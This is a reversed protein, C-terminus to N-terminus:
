SKRAKSTARSIKVQDWIKNAQEEEQSLESLEKRMDETEVGYVSELKIQLRRITYLGYEARQCMEDKDSFRKVKLKERDEKSFNKILNLKERGSIKSLLARDLKELLKGINDKIRTVLNATNMKKAEVILDPNPMKDDCKAKFEAQTKSKYDSVKKSLEKEKVISVAVGKGKYNNPSTKEDEEIEAKFRNIKTDPLTGSILMLLLENAEDDRRDVLEKIDKILNQQIRQMNTGLENLDSREKRRKVNEAEAVARSEPTLRKMQEETFDPSIDKVPVWLPVIEKRLLQPSLLKYIGFGIVALYCAEDMSLEEFYGKEQLEKGAEDMCSILQTVFTVETKSLPPPPQPHAQSIALAESMGEFESVAGFDFSAGQRVLFLMTLLNQAVIENEDQPQLHGLLAAPIQLPNARPREVLSKIMAERPQQAPQSRRGAPNYPNAASSSSLSRPLTRPAGPPRSSPRPQLNFFDVGGFGFALDGNLENSLKRAVEEDELEQAKRRSIEEQSLANSNSAPVRNNASDANDEKPEEEPIPTPECKPEPYLTSIYTLLDIQEQELPKGVLPDVDLLSSLELKHKERASALREPDMAALNQKIFEKKAELFSAEFTSEIFASGIKSKENHILANKEWTTWLLHDFQRDSDETLDLFKTVQNWNERNKESLEDVGTQYLGLQHQISYEYLNKQLKITGYLMETATISSISIAFGLAYTKLLAKEMKVYNSFDKQFYPKSRNRLAYVGIEVAIIFPSLVLVLVQLAVLAVSLIRAASAYAIAKVRNNQAWHNQENQVCKAVVHHLREIM